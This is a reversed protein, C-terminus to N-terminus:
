APDALLRCLRGALWWCALALPIALYADVAYHRVHSVGPGFALDFLPPPETRRIDLGDGHTNCLEAQRRRSRHSDRKQNHSTDNPHHWYLLHHHVRALRRIKHILENSLLSRSAM